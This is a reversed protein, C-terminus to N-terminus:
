VGRWVEMELEDETLQIEPWWKRVKELIAEATKKRGEIDVLYGLLCIVTRKQPRVGSARILNVAEVLEEWRRHRGLLQVYSYYNINTMKGVGLQEAEVDIVGDDGVRVAVTPLFPQAIRMGEDVMRNHNCSDLVISLSWADPKVQFRSFLQEYVEVVKLGEGARNYADMLCNLIPADIKLASTGTHEVKGVPEVKGETMVELMEAFTKEVMDLRGHKAYADMMACYAHANPRFKDSERMLQFIKTATDLQGNRACGDILATYTYVNPQIGDRLMEAHLELAVGFDLTHSHIQILLTYLVVDPTIGARRAEDHLVLTQSVHSPHAALAKALSTISITNPCLNTALMSQFWHIAGRLDKSKAHAEILITYTYVNPVIARRKMTEFCEACRQLDPISAYAKIVESYSVVDPEIGANVMYKLVNTVKDVEGARALLYLLVNLTKLDPSVNNQHMQEFVKLGLDVRNIKGYGLMLNAYSQTTKAVGLKVMANFLQTALLLQGHKITFQILENFVLEASKLKAPEALEGLQAAVLRQINRQSADLNHAKFARHVQTLAVFMEGTMLNDGQESNIEDVADQAVARAQDQHEDSSALLQFLDMRIKRTLKGTGKPQRMFETYLQWARDPNQEGIARYLPKHPSAIPTTLHIFDSRRYGLSEVNLLLTEIKEQWELIMDDDTCLQQAYVLLPYLRLHIDLPIYAAGHMSALTNYLTWSRRAYRSEIARFLNHITLRNLLNFSGFKQTQQPRNDKNDGPDARAAGTAMQRRTVFTNRWSQRQPSAFATTLTRSPSITRIYKSPHGCPQALKVKLLPHIRRM